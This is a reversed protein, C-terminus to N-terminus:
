IHKEYPPDPLEDLARNVLADARHNDLRPVYVFSIRPFSKSLATIENVLPQLSPMKVRYEGNLQNVVLESDLHAILTNPRFKQALKLGEILARYEAVNNTTIGIRAMHTKLVKGTQPDELVIGVAAQGPNGRSGGDTFLHITGGIAEPLDGNVPKVDLAAELLGTVFADRDAAKPMLEKLKKELSLPLRIM